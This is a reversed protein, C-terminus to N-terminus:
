CDASWNGQNGALCTKGGLYQFIGVVKIKETKPVLSVLAINLIREHTVDGSEQQLKSESKGEDSPLEPQFDGSILEKDVKEEIVRSQFTVDDHIELSMCELRLM